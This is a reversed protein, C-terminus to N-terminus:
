QNITIILYYNVKNNIIENETKYKFLNMNSFRTKM